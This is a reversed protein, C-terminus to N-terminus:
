GPVFVDRKIKSNHKDEALISYDWQKKNENNNNNRIAKDHLSKVATAYCWSAGINVWRLHTTIIYFDECLLQM